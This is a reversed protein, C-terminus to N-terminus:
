ADKSLAKFRESLNIISSAVTNVHTAFKGAEAAGSVICAYTSGGIPNNIWCFRQVGPPPVPTEGINEPDPEPFNTVILFLEEKESILREVFQTAVRAIMASVTPNSGLTQLALAVFASFVDEIRYTATNGSGHRPINPIGLRRLHRLRARFAGLNAEKISFTRVLAEEFQRYQM